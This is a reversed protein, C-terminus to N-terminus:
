IEKKFEELQILFDRAEILSRYEPGVNMFAKLWKKDMNEVKINRYFWIAALTFLLTIPLAILQFRTSHLLQDTTWSFTCYFPLQLLLVRVSNITSVGLKSLKEQTQVIPDAYNISRIIRVHGIYIVISLLAFLFIIGASITFYPNKFRNGYVLVGLFAAWIVGFIVAAIKFNALRKLKTNIKTHQLQEVLFLNLQLSRDLKEEQAKWIATIDTENM